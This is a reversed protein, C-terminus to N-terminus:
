WALRAALGVHRGDLTPTWGIATKAAVPRSLFWLVAGTAVLAGSGVFLWTSVNGDGLGDSRITAGTPDCMDGVCGMANKSQIAKVGFYAGGGIAVVGLGMAVYSAIRLPGRAGAEPSAGAPSQPPPAALAVPGLDLTIDQAHHEALDIEESSPEHGPALVAVVHKGVEVPLALGLSAGGLDVDDLRIVTGAPADSPPRLTLRPVRADISTLHEQAFPARTDGQAVGLAVAQQWHARASAVLGMIEECQALSIFTGVRPNLRASELLRARATLVDNADLAARGQRFLEAATSVDSTPPALDGSPTAAPVQAHAATSSVAGLLGLACGLLATRKVQSDM